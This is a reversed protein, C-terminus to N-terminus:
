KAICSTTGGDICTVVASTLSNFQISRVLYADYRMDNVCNHLTSADFEVCFGTIKNIRKCEGIEFTANKDGNTKAHYVDNKGRKVGYLNNPGTPTLVRYAIDKDTSNTVAVDNFMSKTTTSSGAYVQSSILFAFALVALTKTSNKM